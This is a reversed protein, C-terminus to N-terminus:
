KSQEMLSGLEEGVAETLIRKRALEQLKENLADGKLGQIQQQIWLARQRSPLAIVQRDQVTAGNQKAVYQEVIQNALKIDESTFTDKKGIAKELLKDPTDNPNESMVKTVARHRNLSELAAEGKLEDLSQQFQKNEEFPLSQFRQMLPNNEFATRGKVPKRAMFQTLLGATLNRTMNELIIPSRLAAPAADPMAKALKKFAEPTRDIYQEEPNTKGIAKLREDMIDKHRYFDRGTALELPMKIAPNLSSAVSELREQANDGQINVPTLEQLMQQGFDTAAKPDRNQAFKLASETLNGIWKSSERKPIRWYDRVKDGDETTIYRPKGQEDTKPILWYNQKEQEPRADYDAKNEPSNNMYWLYATPIGVATAIRAWARVSNKGHAGSLRGIDAVTGQIRANLFMYLLNLRAAEVAKGQRGFDPSGSYRRIETIAEPIQRALERGSTVGEMRMARKVGMVKSTQEIAKAFEPITNIISRGIHGVRSMATPEQFRLANPTLMEQVTTGAVGSDLFDMFLQNRAGFVDGAISSYLSHVFDMPYRVLDTVGTLGYKSILAQRPVDALLNSIQFPLNLSTAGARFPISAASLMRSIVGGANGGYMQLADAVAPDVAYKQQRGRELVNVSKMGQPVDQGPALRQIFTGNVDTAALESIHRMAMNKDALIRSLLINQRAAAMMDGLKLQSEEIGRMAKTFDAVTDVKAGTGEPKMTEEIYRMVKFPAYFQNGQKIAQYVQPSMRGSEVQLRLAADMHDQYLDAARQFNATQEPGLNNELTRLKAELEPLIYNGVSRRNLTPVNGGAQARQIDLLDQNLRDISRQLFMYANFDAESGEVLRSVDRDFRHVDAEGKGQSGKLQEFIGAIDRPSTLGYAKAIDEALKNLPRFKSSVGTRVKETIDVIRSGISRAARQTPRFIEYIDDLGANIPRQGAAPAGPTPPTPGAPPQGTPPRAGAARPTPAAGTRPPANGSGAGGAGSGSQAGAPQIGRGGLESEFMKRVAAENWKGGKFNYKIHSIGADIAKALPKGAKLALRVAELATDLIAIPIGLSANGSQFGSQLKKKLADVADISANVASEATGAPETSNKKVGTGSVEDVITEGPRLPGDGWLMEGPKIEVARAVNPVQQGGIDWNKDNTVGEIVTGDPQQIKIRRDGPRLPPTAVEQPTATGSEPARNGSGTETPPRQEGTGPHQPQNGQPEERPIPANPGGQPPNNRVNSRVGTQGAQIRSRQLNSFTGTPGGEAPFQGEPAEDLYYGSPDTLGREVNERATRRAVEEATPARGPPQSPGTPSRIIVPETPPVVPRDLMPSVPEFFEAGRNFSVNGGMAPGGGPREILARAPIEPTQFPNLQQSRLEALPQEFQILRQRGHPAQVGQIAKDILIQTLQQQAFPEAKLRPPLMMRIIAAQNAAAQEPTMGPEAPTGRVGKYLLAAFAPNVIAANGWAEGIQAPTADPNNSLDIASEIAAPEQLITNGLMAALLKRSAVIPLTAVNKLKSLESVGGAIANYAGAVKQQTPTKGALEEPSLVISERPIIAHEPDLPEGPPKGYALRWTQSPDFAKVIGSGVAAIPDSVVANGLGAIEQLISPQPGGPPPMTMFYPDEIQSPMVSPNFIPSPTRPALPINADLIPPGSPQDPGFHALFLEEADAETPAVDGEVSLKRGRADEIDFIPM